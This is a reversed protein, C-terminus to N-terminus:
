AQLKKIGGTREYEIDVTNIIQIARFAATLRIDVM